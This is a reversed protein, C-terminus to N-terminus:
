SLRLALHSLRSESRRWVPRLVGDLGYSRGAATAFLAVHALIMLYYSWEWENPANMVSLMIAMSQGIGVVAWFRTALGILLFAGISAEVLLTMWAFFTFNPLVVHEVVWSFPAFVPYEVADGTFRRLAGFDPPRKWGVNEIWLLAVAVRFFAFLLHSGRGTEADGARQAGVATAM